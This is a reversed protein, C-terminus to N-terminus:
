PHPLRDTETTQWASSWPWQAATEALGAKVPNGEVYDVLDRLEETSRVWHDFSEDQWFPLGTRGLIRNAVRSTRGKLWRMISALDIRPEWLVHVHDPMIVWAHLHYFHRVAQGHQLANAVVAAIQADLLRSPTDVSGALRWTVFVISQEPIWHPLRRRYFSMFDPLGCFGITQGV